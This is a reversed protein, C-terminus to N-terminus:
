SPLVIVVLRNLINDRLASEICSFLLESNLNPDRAVEAPIEIDALERYRIARNKLLDPYCRKLAEIGEEDPRPSFEDGWIVTKPHVFYDDVLTQCLEKSVKLGVILFNERIWDLLSQDAYIISGTTDLVFNRNEPLPIRTFEAERELYLKKNAAYREEFPYGMWAAAQRMDQIDLSENIAEDVEHFAFDMEAALLNTCTSKGSNSMGVLAMRLQDNALRDRFQTPTPRM